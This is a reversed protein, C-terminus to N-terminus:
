EIAWSCMKNMAREIQRGPSLIELGDGGCFLRPTKQPMLYPVSVFHRPGCQRARSRCFPAGAAPDESSPGSEVLGDALTPYSCPDQPQHKNAAFNVVVAIVRVDPRSTLLRRLTRLLSESIEGSGAAVRCAKSLIQAKCIAAGSQKQLRQETAVQDNSSQNEAPLHHTHQVLLPGSWCTAACCVRLLLM